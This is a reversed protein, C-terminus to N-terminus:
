VEAVGGVAPLENQALGPVPPIPPGRLSEPGHGFEKALDNVAAQIVVRLYRETVPRLAEEAEKAAYAVREDLVREANLDGTCNEPTIAGM